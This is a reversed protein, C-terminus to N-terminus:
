RRVYTLAIMRKRVKQGKANQTNDVDEDTNALSLGTIKTTTLSNMIGDRLTSCDENNVAYINVIVKINKTWNAQDVSPDRYQSRPDEIVIIPFTTEDDSYSARMKFTSPTLSLAGITDYLTEYVTHSLASDTITVM